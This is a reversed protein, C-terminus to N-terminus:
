PSPEDPTRPDCQSCAVTGAPHPGPKTEVTRRSRNSRGAWYYSRRPSWPERMVSEETVPVSSNCAPCKKYTLRENVFWAAPDADPAPLLYVGAQGSWDSDPAPPMFGNSIICGPGFVRGAARDLYERERDDPEARHRKVSRMWGPREPDRERPGRTDWGPVFQLRMPTALEVTRRLGHTIVWGGVPCM